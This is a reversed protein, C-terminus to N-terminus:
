WLKNVVLKIARIQNKSIDVPIGNDDFAMFMVPGYYVVSNVKINPINSTDTYFMKIKGHLFEKVKYDFGRDNPLVLRCEGHIQKNSGNPEAYHLVLVKKQDELSM